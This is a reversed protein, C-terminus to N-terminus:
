RKRASRLAKYTELDDVYLNHKEVPSLQDWTKGAISTTTESPGPQRVDNSAVVRPAVELFARLQPTSMQPVIKEVMAPTLKHERKGADILESRERADAAQKIANLDAELAAAREAAAKYGQLVGLAEAVDEKDAIETFRECSEARARLAKVAKIAETESANESLGLELLLTKMIQVEKPQMRAARMQVLADPNSPVPVVSIELLENKSLVLVDQGDRRELRVDHPYFGVSVARLSKQQISQWVQEALPNAEASVFNLTAVLAGAEVRVDSAHGIPLERSAHSYLVVPNRSYSELLWDQELITGHRDVTETSAVVRVSRTEADTSRVELARAFMETTM